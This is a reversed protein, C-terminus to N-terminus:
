HICCHFFMQFCPLLFGVINITFRYSNVQFVCSWSFLCLTSSKSSTGTHGFVPLRYEKIRGAGQQQVSTSLFSHQKQPMHAQVFCVLSMIQVLVEWCMTIVMLRTYVYFVQVLTIITKNEIWLHGWSLWTEWCKTVQEALLLLWWGDKTIVVAGDNVFLHQIWLVLMIAWYGWAQKDLMRLRWTDNTFGTAAIEHPTGVITM